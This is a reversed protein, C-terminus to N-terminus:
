ALPEHYYEMAARLMHATKRLPAKRCSLLRAFFPGGVIERTEPGEGDRTRPEAFLLIQFEERVGSM